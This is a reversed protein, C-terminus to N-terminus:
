LQSEGSLLQTASSPLNQWNAVQIVLSCELTKKAPHFCEIHYYSSSKLTHVTKGSLELQDYFGIPMAMLSGKPQIGMVTLFVGTKNPIYIYEQDPTQRMPKNVGFGSIIEMKTGFLLIIKKYAETKSHVEVFASGYSPEIKFQLMTNPM